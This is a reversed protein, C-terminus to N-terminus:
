GNTIISRYITNILHQNIYKTNKWKNYFIVWILNLNFSGSRRGIHLLRDVSGDWASGNWTYTIGGVTHTDNLSPSNPFNLAM